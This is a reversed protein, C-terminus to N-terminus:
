KVYFVFNPRFIVIKDDNYIRWQSIYMGPATPATMDAVVTTEEGVSLPPLMLTEFTRSKIGSYHTIYFEGTWKRFGSNRFVWKIDFDQGPAMVTGDAPSQMSLTVRDTYPTKTWTPYTSGTGGSPKATFTSLPTMTPLSPLTATPVTPIATATNAATATPASTPTAKPADATLQAVLTTYIEQKIAAVDVTPAPQPTVPANCGTVVFLSVAIMILPISRHQRM